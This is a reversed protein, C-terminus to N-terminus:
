RLCSTTFNVRFCKWYQMKFLDDIVFTRIQGM